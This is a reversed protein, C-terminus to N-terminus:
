EYDEDEEDEEDEYEDEDEYYGYDEEEYREEDEDEYLPCDDEDYTSLAIWTSHKRQSFDVTIWGCPTKVIETETSDADLKLDVGLKKFEERIEELDSMKGFLDDKITTNDYLSCLYDLKSELSSMNKYLM